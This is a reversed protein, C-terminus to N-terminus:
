FIKAHKKYHLWWTCLSKKIVRYKHTHIIHTRLTHATHIYTQYTYTIHTHTYIHIHIYLTHTHIHIYTQIYHTHTYYQSWQVTICNATNASGTGAADTNSGTRLL